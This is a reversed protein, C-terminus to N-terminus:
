MLKLRTKPTFYLHKCEEDQHIPEPITVNNQNMFIKMAATATTTLDHQICSNTYTTADINELYVVPEPLNFRPANAFPIGLFSHVNDVAKGTIVINDLSITPAEPEEIAAIIQLLPGFWSLPNLM